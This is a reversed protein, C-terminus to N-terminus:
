TTLKALRSGPRVITQNREPGTSICGIEVGTCSELFELYARAKAPLDEYRSVGVTPESWGPLKEYVPEITEIERTTAPMSELTAGCRRYEVCVPIEGLHDLVDLKTVVMSDFGNIMATYRLLPVDFWGCRRPRGTVAGFERGIERIREGVADHIETPFPGGGVRTIYAKSVGIVGDIRTPAVGAGTCLGGASASSSTVFPYTGFDIDLMTAQAGEFMVRKGRSMAENVLSATDCVMPRLREAYEEYQKRIAAFDMKGDHIDLARAIIEKEEVLADYQAAFTERDLLDAIRIGRRGIKDEYCPGIGRSTTGISVRGPRDESMKEMMRHFPFIVHARNSIKLQRSVEIGAAELTEIETILAAPDVVLGNGIIAQKGPRLIGSPILKLVFTKDGIRVTHGANHGGQYRVVLDFRDSFLDVIKGKGEDGWQAGLIVVNSMIHKRFPNRGFGIM